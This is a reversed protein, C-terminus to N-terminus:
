SLDKTKGKTMEIALGSNYRLKHCFKFEFVPGFITLTSAYGSLISFYSCHCYFISLYSCKCYSITVPKGWARKGVRSESKNFGGKDTDEIETEIVDPRFITAPWCRRPANGISIKFHLSTLRDSTGKTKPTHKTSVRLLERVSM